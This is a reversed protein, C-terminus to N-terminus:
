NIAVPYKNVTSLIELQKTNINVKFNKVNNVVDIDKPIVIQDAILVYDPSHVGFFINIDQIGTALALIDGNSKYYFITMNNNMEELTPM